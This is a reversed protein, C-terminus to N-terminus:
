LENMISNCHMGISHRVPPITIKVDVNTGIRFGQLLSVECRSTTTRETRFTFNQAEDSDNKFETRFLCLNRKKIKGGDGPQQKPFMSCGSYPECSTVHHSIDLYGWNVELRYRRDKMLRDCCTPEALENWAYDVLLKQIDVVPDSSM